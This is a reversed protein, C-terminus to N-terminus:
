SSLARSVMAVGATTTAPVIMVAATMLSIDGRIFHDRARMAPPPVAPMIWDVVVASRPADERYVPPRVLKAIEDPSSIAEMVVVTNDIMRGISVARATAAAM